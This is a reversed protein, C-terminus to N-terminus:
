VKYSLQLLFFDTISWNNVRLRRLILRFACCDMSREKDNRHITCDIYPERVRALPLPLNESSSPILNITNPLHLIVSWTTFFFCSSILPTKWLNTEYVVEVQSLNKCFSYLNPYQFFKFNSIFNNLFVM